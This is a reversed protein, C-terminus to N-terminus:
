PKKLLKMAAAKFDESSRGKAGWKSYVIGTSVFTGDPEWRVLEEVVNQNDSERSYPHNCVLLYPPSPRKIVNERLAATTNLGSWHSFTYGPAKPDLTVAVAYIEGGGDKAFAQLKKTFDASTMTDTASALLLLALTQV